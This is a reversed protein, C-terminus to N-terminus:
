YKEYTQCTINVSLVVAHQYENQKSSVAIENLNNNSFVICNLIKVKIM